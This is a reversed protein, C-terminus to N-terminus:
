SELITLKLKESQQLMPEALFINVLSELACKSFISLLLRHESRELLVRYNYLRCCSICGRSASDFYGILRQVFQLSSPVTSSPVVIKMEVKFLVGALLREIRKFTLVMVLESPLWGVWRQGRLLFKDLFGEFFHCTIHM